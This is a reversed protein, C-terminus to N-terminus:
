KFWKIDCFSCTIHFSSGEDGGRNQVREVTTQNRKCNECYYMETYKLTQTTNVRKFIEKTIDEYKEPSLEKCSLTAITDLDITQDIIKKFLTNNKQSLVSILNYCVTHYIDIFQDNDWVCRINYGRSKRITENSCSNEIHKIIYTQADYSINNFEKYYSLTHSFIILKLRRKDNYETNKYFESFKLPIANNYNERLKNAPNLM